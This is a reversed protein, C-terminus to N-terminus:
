FLFISPEPATIVAIYLILAALGLLLAALLLRSNPIEDASTLWRGRKRGTFMPTVLDQRKVLRYFAIAAVHVAIAIWLWDALGRHLRSLRDSVADSVHGYLPGTNMIEDNAFLGTVAIALLLALLIVIMLAGLPSHGAYEEPVRSLLTRAHHWWARPGHPFGAFRAHKPGGLGWALRFLLLVLTAYGFWAHWTFYSVGLEYTVWCGFVAIVLLWHFLRLPLDWV